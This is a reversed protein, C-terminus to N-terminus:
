EISPSLKTQSMDLDVNAVDCKDHQPSLVNLEKVMDKLEDGLSTEEKAIIADGDNLNYSIAVNLKDDGSLKFTEM